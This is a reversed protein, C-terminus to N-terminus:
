IYRQKKSIYNHENNENGCITWNQHCYKNIYNINNREKDKWKENNRYEIVNSNNYKLILYICYFYKYCM